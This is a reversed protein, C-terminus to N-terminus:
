TDYEGCIDDDYSSMHYVICALCFDANKDTHEMNACLNEYMKDTGSRKTSDWDFTDNGDGGYMLDNGPGGDLFNNVSNGTLKDNGSGGMANEIICNYAIGLNNTGDYTVKVTGPNSPKPYRISSYSGPTLDVDCNTSFNAVSITDNGAADWISTFFPSAPDYKYVDNGSKYSTNAGYIYQIAAIDLVMPADPFIRYTLWDTKGNVYGINPYM